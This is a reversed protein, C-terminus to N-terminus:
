RLSDAVRMAEDQDHFGEVRYTVGEEVWMLVHGHTRVPGRRSVGDRDLYTIEPHTGTIWLGPQERVAVPRVRSRPGLDAIEGASAGAPAAVEVVTFEPYELAVLGGPSRRDVTVRPVLTIGEPVRVPIDVAARATALDVTAVLPLAPAATSTTATRAPRSPPVAPTTAEDGRAAWWAGGAALVLVVAAAAAAWWAARSRDRRGGVPAPATLEQRMAAVLDDGAPHDLHRGLDRLETELDM